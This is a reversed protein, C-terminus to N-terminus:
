CRPKQGWLLPVGVRVGTTQSVKAGTGGNGNPSVQGVKVSEMSKMEYSAMVATCLRDESPAARHSYQLSSILDAVHSCSPYPACLRFYRSAWPLEVSLLDLVVAFSSRISPFILV